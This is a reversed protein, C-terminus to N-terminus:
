QPRLMHRSYENSNFSNYCQIWNVAYNFGYFVHIYFHKWIPLCFSTTKFKHTQVKETLIPLLTLCPLLWFFAYLRELTEPRFHKFLVHTRKAGTLLWNNKWITKHWKINRNTNSYFRTSNRKRETWNPKTRKSITKQKSVSNQEISNKYPWENWWAFLVCMCIRSLFFFM